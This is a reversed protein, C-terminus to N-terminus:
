NGLLQLVNEYSDCSLNECDDFYENTLPQNDILVWQTDPYSKCAGKFASLYQNKKHKKLQDQENNILDYGLLLVLDNSEAVLHMSIIDEVSDFVSPFDGQYLKVGAPRGLDVYLNQPIYLNCAAQFARKILNEAKESDHCLVNDTNWGRWTKWSGWTSGIASLQAPDILPDVFDSAIVWCVRM